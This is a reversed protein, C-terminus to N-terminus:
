SNHVGEKRAKSLKKECAHANTRLELSLSEREQARQPINRQPAGEEVTSKESELSQRRLESWFEM